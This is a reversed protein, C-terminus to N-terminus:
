QNESVPAEDTPGDSPATPTPRQDKFKGKHVKMWVIKTRKRNKYAPKYWGYHKKAKVM